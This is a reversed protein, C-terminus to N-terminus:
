GVATAVVKEAVATVGEVRVAVLALAFLLVISTVMLTHRGFRRQGVQAMLSFLRPTRLLRNARLAGRLHPVSLEILDLPLLSIADRLLSPHGLNTLNSVYRKRIASRSM